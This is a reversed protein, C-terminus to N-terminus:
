TSAVPDGRRAAAPELVVVQLDTPLSSKAVTLKLQPTYTKVGMERIFRDVPELGESQTGPIRYHMPIVLKPELNSVVEAAVSPGITSEGGVPILLIDINGVAELQEDTLMHGLDGLHCVLLEDFDLVYVTNHIPHTTFSARRRGDESRQASADLVDKHRTQVGTILVGAIEYEGPGSVVKPSGGVGEIYSHHPHAHSVTVITASVRGMSYGYSPPFPDTVITVDRGRIRFCSHGLYNIEM